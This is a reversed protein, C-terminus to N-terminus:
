PDLTRKPTENSEMAAVGMATIKRVASMAEKRCGPFAEEVLARKAKLVYHEMYIIWEEPTHVDAEPGWKTRQYTREDDVLGYVESRTAM